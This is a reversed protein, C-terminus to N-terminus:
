VEEAGKGEWRVAIKGDETDGKGEGAFCADRLMITKGNALKLTVTADVGNLLSDTDLDGADRIEGEIYPVQPIEKFGHVRDHGILMERKPRGLSYSFNGTCDFVQGNVQLNIIGGRRNASPAM